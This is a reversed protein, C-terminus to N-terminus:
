EEEDRERHLNEQYELWDAFDSNHRAIIQELEDLVQNTQMLPFFRFKNKKTANKFLKDVRDKRLYLKGEKDRAALSEKHSVDVKAADVVPLSQLQQKLFRLGIILHTRYLRIVKVGFKPATHYIQNMRYNNERLPFPPLAKRKSEMLRQHLTKEGKNTSM